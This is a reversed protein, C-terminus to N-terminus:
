TAVARSVLREGNRVGWNRINRVIKVHRNLGTLNVNGEVQEGIIPVYIKLSDEAHTIQRVLRSFSVLNTRKEEPPLNIKELMAAVYHGLQLVMAEINENVQGDDAVASLGRFIGDVMLAEPVGQDRAQDLLAALPGSRLDPPLSAQEADLNRRLVAISESLQSNEGSLMQNDNKQRVLELNSRVLDSALGDKEQALKATESRRAALDNRLAWVEAQLRQNSHQEAEHARLADDRERQLTIQRTGLAAHDAEVSGLKARLDAITVLDEANRRSAAEFNERARRADIELKRKQDEFAEWQSQSEEFRRELSQYRQFIDENERRLEERAANLDVLMRNSQGVEEKLSKLERADEAAHGSRTERELLLSANNKSLIEIFDAMSNISGTEKGPTPSILINQGNSLQLVREYALRLTDRLDSALVKAERSQGTEDRLREIEKNLELRAANGEKIASDQARLKDRIRIFLATLYNESEEGSIDEPPRKGDVMLAIDSMAQGADADRAGQEGPQGAPETDVSSTSSTGSDSPPAMEMGAVLTAPRPNAGEGNETPATRNSAPLVTAAVNEAKVQPLLVKDDAARLSRTSIVRAEPRRKAAGHRRRVRITRLKRIVALVIIAAGSLCVTLTMPSYASFWDPNIGLFSRKAKGTNVGPNDDPAPQLPGTVTVPPKPPPPGTVPPERAPVAEGPRPVTPNMRNPAGSPENISGNTQDTSAPVSRQAAGQNEIRGSGPTAEPAPNDAANAVTPAAPVSAQAPTVLPSAGGGALADPGSNDGRQSTEVPLQAIVSTPGTGLGQLIVSNITKTSERAAKKSKAVNECYAFIDSIRIKGFNRSPGGHEKALKDWADITKDGAIGDAAGKLRGDAFLATQLTILWATYDGVNRGRLRALDEDQDVPGGCKLDDVTGGGGSSIAAAQGATQAAGQGYTGALLLVFSATLVQFSYRVRWHRALIGPRGAAHM